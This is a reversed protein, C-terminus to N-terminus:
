FDGKMLTLMIANQIHMRNEAQQFILSVNEDDMVESTIDLERHAPQCHLVHKIGTNDLLARNIQYPMFKDKVAQLPTDDGMSVWTDGYVVDYGKIDDMSNTVRITAGSNEAIDEVQKLIQADPSSGIPCVATVEAGVIAGVIFLSHTVNNGDGVYALKVKSLDDYHEAITMFDALGQCPHYLDCLSNIVPVNSYEALEELTKHSMVRAVICDAWRTLNSAFDKVTEREGIAGNQSDLYVAHGGMKHIGIDFTVRTRLSQKEFITVISKGKLADAYKKPNAKLDKGLNILEIVQQKSAEKGTLLHEM